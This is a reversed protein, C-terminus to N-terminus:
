GSWAPQVDSLNGAIADVVTGTFKTGDESHVIVGPSSILLNGRADLLEAKINPKVAVLRNGELKMLGASSAGVWVSGKFKAVGFMPAPGELLHAWGSQSGQLMQRGAGVAFIEDPSACYVASLVAGTPSPMRSWQTGDWRAILGEEGVAVVFDRAIGHMAVVKGPSTTERWARGDWRYLVHRSQHVGWTFVCEDDLGWIGTLVGALQETQWSGTGPAAAPKVHVGMGGTSAFVRGAPSRWLGTFWTVGGYLRHIGARSLEFVWSEGAGPKFGYKEDFRLALFNCDQLSTGTAHSLIHGLKM